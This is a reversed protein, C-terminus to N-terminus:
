RHVIRRYNGKIRIELANEAAYKAVEQVAWANAASRTEHWTDGRLIDIIGMVPCRIEVRAAYYYDRASRRREAKIHAYIM